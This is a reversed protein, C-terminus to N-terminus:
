QDILKGHEGFPAAAEDEMSFFQIVLSLSKRATSIPAAKSAGGAMARSLPTGSFMAPFALAHAVM